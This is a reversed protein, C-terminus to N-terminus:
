VVVEKNQVLNEPVTPTDVPEVQAVIKSFDMPNLGSEELLQNFIKGLGPIQAFAQPNRMVERIINTLKDANQALKKQKGKINIFVDVPIDKLEDKLTSFFRRTGGAKFEDRYLNIMEVREDKTPVNGGKLINEKIAKEVENEAISQAIEALEDISLDESFTKGNDMEKVLYDLIWDRYLQEAVFTSIKGQRYEHMGEGEQVILNQLAFPTGSSPNIGLSADSASGLTRASNERTIQENTFMAVNPVTTDTRGFSRGQQLKIVSNAKLNKLKTDGLDDDDTHFLVVAAADLLKKLQIGSYNTWTQDEFLTEVISRGCARGFVPDIVLSKFPLKKEPGKFLTIGNKKGKSDKFFTIIHIQPSYELDSDEPNLWSNPFWGHVEFVEIYKGPTQVEKGDEKIQPTKKALKAQIIAKEIEDDYWKGKFQTLEAPSYQHKLGFPASLVDTQDCFAISQLPVVEPRINNVNKVLVLDYIVSSEVLEDIFTDINYKRAWQPHYKRVLFSKFYNEPDDVFPVIDNVNFGESRFAVNLIPTVIDKYPRKGDNKGSHFWGKSVNTCREIHDFMNWEKSGTVPVQLTKYISQQSIIYEYINKDM